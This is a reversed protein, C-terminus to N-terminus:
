MMSEQDEGIHIGSVTALATRITSKENRISDTDITEFNLYYTSTLYIWSYKHCRVITTEKQQLLKLVQHAM